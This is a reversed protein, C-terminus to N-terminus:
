DDDLDIGDNAIKSAVIYRLPMAPSNWGGANMLKDIPTKDNALKTAWYHRLDHPSLGDIGINEGLLAIRKAISFRNMGESTLIGSKNSSRLLAGNNPLADHEIYARMANLLGNTMKHTQEKSVKERWFTITNNELDVNEVCLRVVEGVRLGLGSMLCVLLADRRGQPTNPQKKLDKMQASSLVVSKSKKAGTRTTERTEDIRLGEKFGYGSVSRIMAYEAPDICGAKTALQAYTKVTSLRVNISGVAFGQQLQWKVFGEVLGWTVGRWSQPNTSLGAVLVGAVSLYKAFVSLDNDQRALTNKAKRSRYDDFVHKAAIHNAVQGAAQMKERQTAIATTMTQGKVM